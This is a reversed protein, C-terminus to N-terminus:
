SDNSVVFVLSIFDFAYTKSKTDFKEIHFKFTLEFMYENHLSNWKTADFESWILLRSISELNEWAMERCM